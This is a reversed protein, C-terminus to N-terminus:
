NRHSLASAIQLRKSELTPIRCWKKISNSVEIYYGFVRNYGVKLKPIGTKERQDAEIASLLGTSDAMDGNLQDLEAHYGKKIIGGERVSFPPDEVIASDILTYVDQLTDIGRYIEQM